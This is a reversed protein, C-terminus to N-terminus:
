DVVLWCCVVCLVGCVVRVFVFVVGSLLRCVAVFVLCCVGPVVCRVVFLWVVLLLSWGVPSLACCGVSLMWRVTVALLLCCAAFLM